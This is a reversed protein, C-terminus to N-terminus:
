LANLKDLEKKAKRSDDMVERILALKGKIYDSNGKEGASLFEDLLNRQLQVFYFLILRNETFQVIDQLYNKQMAPVYPEVLTYEIPNKKEELGKVQKDKLDLLEELAHIRERLGNIDSMLRSKNKEITKEEKSTLLRM